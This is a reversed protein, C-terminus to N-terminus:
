WQSVQDSRRAGARVVRVQAPRQHDGVTGQGSQYGCSLSRHGSGQEDATNLGEFRVWREPLPQTFMATVNAAGYSYSATIAGTVGTIDTFQFSGHKANVTYKTNAVTTAGAKIGRVLREAQRASVAQRNPRRRL